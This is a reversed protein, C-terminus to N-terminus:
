IRSPLFDAKSLDKEKISGAEAINRILRKRNADLANAGKLRPLFVKM